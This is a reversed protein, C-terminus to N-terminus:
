VAGNFSLSVPVVANNVNANGEIDILVQSTGKNIFNMVDQIIAADALRIQITIQTQNNPPITTPQFFSVNGSPMGNISVSGALSYLTLASPTPNQVLITVNVIPSLLNSIDFGIATVVFRLASVAKARSLLVYGLFAVGVILLNDM